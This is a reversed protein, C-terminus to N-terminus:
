TLVLRTRARVIPLSLGHSHSPAGIVVLVSGYPGVWTSSWSGCASGCLGFVMQSALWPTRRGRLRCLGGSDVSLLGCGIGVGLASGVASKKQNQLFIRFFLVTFAEDVAGPWHSSLPLVLDRFVEVVRFQFTLSIQEELRQQVRDKPSFKFAEMVLWDVVVLFFQFKLMCQEALRQQDTWPTFRTSGRGGGRDGRGQLVPIDITQEATGQQLSSYSVITPVDVLQEARRPRRCASRQPIRDLSIKPVTIVQEVLAPADIKQLFEVVQDGLRPVPVDLIQVYPVIDEIHGATHRLVGPLPRVEVLLSPRAALVDGDDDLTFYETSAM